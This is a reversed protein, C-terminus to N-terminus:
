LQGVPTQSLKVKLEKPSASVIWKFSPYSASCVTARHPRQIFRLSEENRYKEIKNYAAKFGGFAKEAQKQLSETETWTHHFETSYGLVNDFDCYLAYISLRAMLRYYRELALTENSITDAKAITRDVGAFFDDSAASAGPALSLLLALAITKM